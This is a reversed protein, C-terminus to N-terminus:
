SGASLTLTVTSGPEAPSGAPPAQQLVVGRPADLGVLDKPVSRSPAVEFGAGRLVTEAKAEDKGIVIPVLSSTTTTTSDGGSDSAVVILAVTLGVVAVTLGAVTLAVLRRNM